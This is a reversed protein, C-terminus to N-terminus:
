IIGLEKLIDYKFKSLPRKGFEEFLYETGFALRYIEENSLMVDHLVGARLISLYNESFNNRMKIMDQLDEIHHNYIEKICFLELSNQAKLSKASATIELGSESEISYKYSFHIDDSHNELYPHLLLDSDIDKGGKQGSNCVTCSPILNYFSLALLPHISQPYYHDFAPRSIKTKAKTKVIITNTYNRNCYPCTRIDLDSALQYADYRDKSKTSFWEYNFVKRIIKNVKKNRNKNIIETLEISIKYIEDPNGALILPLKSKIEEFLLKDKKRRLEIEYKAIRGTILKSMEDKFTKKAKRFRVTNTNINIM